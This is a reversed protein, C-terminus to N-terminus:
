WHFLDLWKGDKSQIYIWYILGFANQYNCCNLSLLIIIYSFCLVDFLLLVHFVLLILLRNVNSGETTFAMGPILWNQYSSHEIFCLFIPNWLRTGFGIMKGFRKTIASNRWAYNEVSMMLPALSFLTKSSQKFPLVDKSNMPCKVQLTLNYM